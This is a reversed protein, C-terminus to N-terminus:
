PAYPSEDRHDNRGYDEGIFFLDQIVWHIALVGLNNEKWESDEEHWSPNNKLYIGNQYMKEM